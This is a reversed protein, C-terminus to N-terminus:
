RGLTSLWGCFLIEIALLLAILAYLNRWSSLVPPPEDDGGAAGREPREPPEPSM